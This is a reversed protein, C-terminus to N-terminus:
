LVVFAVLFRQSALDLLFCSDAKLLFGHSKEFDTHTVVDFVTGEQEGFSVHVNEIQRRRFYNSRGIEELSPPLSSVLESSM